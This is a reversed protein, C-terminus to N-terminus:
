KATQGTHTDSEALLGPPLVPKSRPDDPLLPVFDPPPPPEMLLRGVPDDALDPSESGEPPDFPGAERQTRFRPTFVDANGIVFAPRIAAVEMPEFTDSVEMAIARAQTENEAEVIFTPLPFPGDPEGVDVPLRRGTNIAYFMHENGKVSDLRSGNDRWVFPVKRAYPNATRMQETLVDALHGCPRILRSSRCKLSTAKM